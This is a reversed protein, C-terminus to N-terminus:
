LYFTVIYQIIVITWYLYYCFFFCFFYIVSSRVIKCLSLWFEYNYLCVFDTLLRFVTLQNTKEKLHMTDQINFIKLLKTVSSYWSTKNMTYNREAYFLMKCCVSPYLQHGYSCNRDDWSPPRPIPYSHKKDILNNRYHIKFSVHM